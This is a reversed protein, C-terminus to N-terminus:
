LVAITSRCRGLDCLALFANWMFPNLKLAEVYDEVAATIDHHASWLQGRLCWVAAADPLSQRRTDTHKDACYTLGLRMTGSDLLSVGAIEHSGCVGVETWRM